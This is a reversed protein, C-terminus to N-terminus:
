LVIYPCPWLNVGTPCHIANLIWLLLPKCIPDDPRWGLAKEAAVIQKLNKWPKKKNAALYSIQPFFNIIVITCHYCFFFLYNPKQLM